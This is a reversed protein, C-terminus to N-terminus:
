RYNEIILVDSEPTDRTYVVTKSDPSYSGNHAHWRGKGDTLQKPSRPLPGGPRVPGLPISYLNQHFHSRAYVFTVRSGDRAAAVDIHPGRYLVEDSRTALDALVLERDGSQDPAMRTYVIRQSDRYWDFDANRGGRDV